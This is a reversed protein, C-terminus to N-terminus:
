QTTAQMAREAETYPFRQIIAQMAAFYADWEAQVKATEDAHHIVDPDSTYRSPRKCEAFAANRQQINM